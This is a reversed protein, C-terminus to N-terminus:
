LTYAIYQNVKHQPNYVQLLINPHKENKMKNIAHNFDSIGKIKQKNVHTIIDGKVLGNRQAKSGRQVATVIVGQQSNKLDLGQRIRDNLQHVQFGLREQMSQSNNGSTQNSQGQIKGLTVQIKKHKGNRIIGLTIKSGPKSTAIETRFDDYNKIKKGNITKIVDGQKLGASDAPTNNEVDGVIIGQNNKLGFSKAMAQNIDSGYIGLEAHTVKGYKILSKMVRRALNIPVAFGIGGNMGTRSYIAANIGVLEGNMNVLAGGSNGPNIAADTQIYNEYGKGHEILNIHRHKASVIGLTVTHALAEPSGIAMVLAGVKLSDSNGMKITPLNHDDIKVVAIDTTPDAGVVKASYDKNNGLTVRIHNANKVVHDNTLIYGDSSVIVGSGLARRTEKRNQPNQGQFPNGFFHFFPNNFQQNPVKVTEKIHITVVTPNVQKAINELADNLDQLSSAPKKSASKIHTTPTFDPLSHAPAEKADNSKCAYVGFVAIILVALLSHISKVPKM